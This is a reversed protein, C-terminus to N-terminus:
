AVVGHIFGGSAPQQLHNSLAPAQQRVDAAPIKLAVVGQSLVQINPSFLVDVELLPLNRDM